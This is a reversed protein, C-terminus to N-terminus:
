QTEEEGMLEQPLLKCSRRANHSCGQNRQLMLDGTAERIPGVGVEVEHGRRGWM